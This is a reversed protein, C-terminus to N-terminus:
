LYWGTTKQATMRGGRDDFSTLAELFFSEAEEISSFMSAIIKQFHKEPRLILKLLHRVFEDHRDSRSMISANDIAELCKAITESM